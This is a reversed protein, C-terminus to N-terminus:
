REGRRCSNDASTDPKHSGMMKATVISVVCAIAYIFIEVTCILVGDALWAVSWFRHCMPCYFILSWLGAFSWFGKFQFRKAISGTALLPAIKCQISAFLVGSQNIRGSVLLVVGNTSSFFCGSPLIPSELRRSRTFWSLSLISLGSLCRSVITVTIKSYLLGALVIALNFIVFFFLPNPRTWEHSVM